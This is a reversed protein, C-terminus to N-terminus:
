WRYAPNDIALRALTTRWLHVLLSPDDVALRDDAMGDCLRQRLADLSAGGAMDDNAMGHACLLRLLGAREDAEAAKGQRQERQLVGLLRAAVRLDFDSRGAGEERRVAAEIASQAAALIEEPQAPLNM